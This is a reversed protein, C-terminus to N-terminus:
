FTVPCADVPTASFGYVTADTSGDTSPAFEGTVFLLQPTGRASLRDLESVITGSGVLLYRFSRTTHDVSRLELAIIGGASTSVYEALRGCASAGTMAATTPATAATASATPVGTEASAPAVSAYAALWLSWAM